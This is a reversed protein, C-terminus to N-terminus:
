RSKAATKWPSRFQSPVANILRLFIKNFHSVNNFGVNMATKAVPEGSLALEVMADITRLNNRYEVPSMCYCKKFSRTMVAHSFRLQSGLEFLTLDSKFTEDILRKTKTAVASVSEQLGLPARPHSREVISVIEAVTEPLKEETWPFWFPERSISHPVPARSIHARFKVIGEPLHWKVISFPPLFGAAAGPIKTIAGNRSFSVSQGLPLISFTWFPGFVDIVTRPQDFRHIRDFWVLGDSGRQFRSLYNTGRM